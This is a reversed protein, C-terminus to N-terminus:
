TAKRKAAKQEQTPVQVDWALGVVELVRIVCYTLDVEWWELGHRASWQFAHHNNHFNEGLNFLVMMWNNASLDGAAVCSAVVSLWDAVVLQHTCFQGLRSSPHPLM